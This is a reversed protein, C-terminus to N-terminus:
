NKIQLKCNGPRRLNEDFIIEGFGKAVIQGERPNKVSTIVSNVTARVSSDEFALNCMPDIECDEL